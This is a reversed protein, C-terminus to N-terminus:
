LCPESRANSHSQRLGPAIAGIPSRAQSGGYAAPTAWIFLYIFKGTSSVIVDKTKKKKINNNNNGWYLKKRSYLM